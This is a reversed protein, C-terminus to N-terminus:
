QKKIQMTKSEDQWPAGRKSLLFPHASTILLQALDGDFCRSTWLDGALRSTRAGCSKQVLLINKKDTISWRPIFYKRQTQHSRPVAFRVAVRSRGLQPVRRQWVAKFKWCIVFVWKRWFLSIINIISLAFQQITLVSQTFKVKIIIQFHYNINVRSSFLTLKNDM